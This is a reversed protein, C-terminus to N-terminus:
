ESQMNLLGVMKSSTAKLFEAINRITAKDILKYKDSKSLLSEGIIQMQKIEEQYNLISDTANSAGLEVINRYHAKFIELLQNRSANNLKLISKVSKEIDIDVLIPGMGYTRSSDPLAEQLLALLQEVTDDSITEFFLVMKNKLKGMKQDYYDQLQLLTSNLYSSHNIRARIQRYAEYFRHQDTIKDLYSIAKKLISREINDKDAKVIGDADIELLCIAASITDGITEINNGKLAKTTADYNKKFTKNDLQYYNYLIQWPKKEKEDILISRLYSEDFCGKLMYDMICSILSDDFVRVDYQLSYYKEKFAFTDDKKFYSLFGKSQWEEYVKNGTKYELYTILFNCLLTKAVSPYTEKNSLDAVRKVCQNYDYIAQRVIRLNSKESLNFIKGILQKNCELLNYSDGDIENIFSSIASDTDPTITFERGFVKEKHQQFVTNDALKIADGIVIVKCGSHEVFYNIYGLFEGVCIQSRELDDFVLVKEGKIVDGNDNFLSMVDLTCSLQESQANEHDGDIDFDYRITAKGFAKVIKKAISMGKSYLWPKIEREIANNIAGISNLGYLSVYVPKRTVHSADDNEKLSDLWNKIFFTKGCGWKGNILVAYQPNPNKIYENLFAVIDNNM